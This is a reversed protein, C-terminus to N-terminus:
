AIYQCRTFWSLQHLKTSSNNVSNRWFSSSNLKCWVSGRILTQVNSQSGASVSGHTQWVFKVASQLTIYINFWQSDRDPTNRHRIRHNLISTATTTSRKKKKSDKFNEQNPCECKAIRCEILGSGKGVASRWNVSRYENMTCLQSVSLTKLLVWTHCVASALSSLRRSKSNSAWTRCFKLGTPVKNSSTASPYMQRGTWPTEKDSDTLSQKITKHCENVANNFLVGFLCYISLFLSRHTHTHTHM